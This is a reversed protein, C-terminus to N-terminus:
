KHEIKIYRLFYRWMKNKGSKMLANSGLEGAGIGKILVEVQDTVQDTTV